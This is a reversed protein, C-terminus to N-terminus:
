FALHRATYVSTPAYDRATTVRGRLQVSGGGRPAERFRMASLERAHERPAYDRARRTFRRSKEPSFVARDVPGAFRFMSIGVTVVTELENREASASAFHEEESADGGGDGIGRAGSPPERTRM